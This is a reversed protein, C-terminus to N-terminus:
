LLSLQGDSSSPPPTPPPLPSIPPTAPVPVIDTLSMQGDDDPNPRSLFKCGAIAVTAKGGEVEPDNVMVMTQAGMRVTVQRGDPLEIWDGENLLYGTSIPGGPILKKQPTLYNPM